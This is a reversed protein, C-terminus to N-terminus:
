SVCFEALASGGQALETLLWSLKVSFIFYTCIHVAPNVSCGDHGRACGHAGEDALEIAPKEAPGAASIRRGAGLTRVKSIFGNGRM